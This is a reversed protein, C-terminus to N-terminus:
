EIEFHLIFFYGSFKIKSLKKENEMEFNFPVWFEARDIITESRASYMM